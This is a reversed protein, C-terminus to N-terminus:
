CGGDRDLGNTASYTVTDPSTTGGTYTVTVCWNAAAAQVNASGAPYTLAAGTVNGSVNGIDTLTGISYAPAIAFAGAPLVATADVYYIAIEKGLTSVDSVAAT